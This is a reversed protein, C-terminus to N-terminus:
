NIALLYPVRNKFLAFHIFGLNYAVELLNKIGKGIDKYSCADSGFTVYKGGAKKFTSLITHIQLQDIEFDFLSQNDVELAKESQALKELIIKIKENINNVNLKLEPKNLVFKFPYTIQSLSNFKGWAILDILEEFYKDLIYNVNEKTFHIKSFNKSGKIKNIRALVFDFDAISLAKEASEKDHTAQNLEVGRFINIYGNFINQAKKIQFITQKNIKKFADESFDDCNCPDIITISYLGIKSAQECIKIVSDTTNYFTDSHIHSDSIFDYNM